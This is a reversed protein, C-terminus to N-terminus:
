RKIKSLTAECGRQLFNIDIGVGIFRFGKSILQNIHDINAGFAIGPAVGAAECADLVKDMQEVVKPHFPEGRFGMSASLDMPGIFTADVGEVSVIDEINRIAEEREIQVIVMIEDNAIRLYEEPTVNWATAARNPAVGRLGEPPYMCARVANEAEEKNSIWPIVVGYVGTDLARKIANLDNWVVRVLPIAPAGRIFKIMRDVSEITPYGHETDFLIWDFGANAMTWVAEPNMMGIWSGLATKGARLM